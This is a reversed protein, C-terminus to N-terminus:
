ARMPWAFAGARLLSPPDLTADIITTPKGGPTKGADILLDVQRRFVGEVADPSDLPQAGSRNLSTGTLAGSAALLARIKTAAPLRVALTSQGRSAAIPAKIRFIVTLAAPWIGFFHDLKAAPEQVGLRELQPRVGFLVPLPKGDDRGKAEFIRRVGVDSFPDAALAYYTETPLAAIGGNGLLERLRFIEEPSSILADISLRRM